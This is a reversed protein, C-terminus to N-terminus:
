NWVVYSRGDSGVYVTKDPGVYDTRVDKPYGPVEAASGVNGGFNSGQGKSTSGDTRQVFEEGQGGILSGILGANQEALDELALPIDLYTGTQTNRNDVSTFPPANGADGTPPGQDLGPEQGPEPGAQTPGGGIGFVERLIDLMEQENAFRQQELGLEGLGLVGGIAGLGAEQAGLRAAILQDTLNRGAVNRIDGAGAQAAGQMGLGGMASQAAQDALARGLQAENQARIAAEQDALNQQGLVGGLFETALAELGAQDSPLSPPVPSTQRGGDTVGSNDVGFDEPSPMIKEPPTFDMGATPDNAVGSVFDAPSPTTERVPDQGPTVGEGLQGAQNRPMDERQPSTAGVPEAGLVREGHQAMKQLMRNRSKKDEEEFLAM